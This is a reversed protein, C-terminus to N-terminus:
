DPPAAWVGRKARRAENEAASLEGYKYDYDQQRRALGVRVLEVGVDKIGISPDDTQLRGVMQGQRRGEFRLRANKNLVLNAVFDQAQKELDANGPPDVGVLRVDYQGEGYDLVVTDSRKVETVKGYISDGAYATSLWVVCVLLGLLWTVLSKKRM